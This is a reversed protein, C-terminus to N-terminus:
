SHLISLRRMKRYIPMRNVVQRTMGCFKALNQNTLM